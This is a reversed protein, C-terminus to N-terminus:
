IRWKLKGIVGNEIWKFQAYAIGIVCMVSILFQLTFSGLPELLSMLMSGFTMHTLYISFSIDSAIKVCTPVKIKDELLMFIVFILLAYAFSILYQETQYYVTKFTLIGEVFIFWQILVMPCFIKVTVRNEYLERMLIGFFPVIAFVLWQMQIVQVGSSRSYLIWALYLADGIAVFLFKNKKLFGFFTGSYLYIFLLPFLYWTAGNISNDRGFLYCLLTGGEVWEVASFQTWWTAGCLITILRDFIWFVGTSIILTGIIRVLKNYIFQIRNKDHTVMCFGSIIFFLCVGFGGFYQVINLPINFYHDVAKTVIWNPNRLGGLHDYVIACVGICRLWNIFKYRVNNEGKCTTEVIKIWM